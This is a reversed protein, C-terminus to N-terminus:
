GLVYSLNLFEQHYMKKKNEIIEEISFFFFFFPVTFLSLFNKLTKSLQLVTEIM